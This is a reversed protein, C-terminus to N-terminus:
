LLALTTRSSQSLEAGHSAGPDHDYLSPHGPHISPCRAGEGQGGRHLITQVDVDASGRDGVGNRVPHGPVGPQGGGVPGTWPPRSRHGASVGRRRHSAPHGVDPEVGVHGPVVRPVGGQDQSHGPEGVAGEGRPRLGTRRRRHAVAQGHRPAQHHRSRRRLGGVLLGRPGSRPLIPRPVDRGRQLHDRHRRHQLSSGHHYHHQNNNQYQQAHKALPDPSRIALHAICTRGAVIECISWFASLITTGRSLKQGTTRHGAM